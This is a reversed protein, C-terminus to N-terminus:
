ALMIAMAVFYLARLLVACQSSGIETKGSGTGMM